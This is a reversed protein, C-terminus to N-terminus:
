LSRAEEGKDACGASQRKSHEEPKQRGYCCDAQLLCLECRPRRPECIFRTFDLLLEPDPGGNQRSLLPLLGRLETSGKTEHVMPLGTLRSLFRLINVDAPVEDGDFAFATIATAVYPGVGPIRELDARDSPIEGGLEALIFRAAEILYPARQPLGLSAIAEVVDSESASALDPISPFRRYIDEFVGAVLDARTRVLLFEALFVRYPTRLARWPLDQAQSFSALTALNRAARSVQDRQLHLALEEAVQKVFTPPFAEGIMSSIRLRGYKELPFQYNPPFTQFLSSERLSMARDQVPHLYRGKSPNHSFRTITPAPADWAMRGYVDRFGEVRKHCDLQEEAPLDGRSGGDPPIKRIREMVAETHTTISQHLPDSSEEPPPLEGIVDRVTRHRKVKELLRLSPVEGLRSAVLVLRRRRQPVGYDVLNLVEYDYSYGLVGLDDLLEAFRSDNRLGPVNEFLITKPLTGRVLRVFDLVLDNRPDDVASSGNRTRMRSFGQCPPCGVMLDLAGRTLHIGALIDDASVSRIDAFRVIGPHNMEYGAAAADDVEICALVRYNADVLGSTVGGCGAFVDVATFCRPRRM